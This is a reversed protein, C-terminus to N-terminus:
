FPCHVCCLVILFVAYLVCVGSLCVLFQGAVVMSAGLLVPPAAGVWEQGCYIPPPPPPLLLPRCWVGAVSGRSCVGTGVPYALHAESIM